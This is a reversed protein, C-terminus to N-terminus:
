YQESVDATAVVRQFSPSLCCHSTPPSRSRKWMIEQQLVQIWYVRRHYIWYLFTVMGGGVKM